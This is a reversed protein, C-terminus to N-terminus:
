NFFWTFFVSLKVFAFNVESPFFLRFFYCLIYWLALCESGFKTISCCVASTLNSEVEDCVFNKRWQTRYPSARPYPRHLMTSLWNSRDSLMLPLHAFNWVTAALLLPSWVVLDSEDNGDPLVILHEGSECVNNSTVWWSREIPIVLEIIAQKRWVNIPTKGRANGTRPAVLHNYCVSPLFWRACHEEVPTGRFGLTGCFMNHPEM